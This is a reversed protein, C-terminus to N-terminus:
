RVFIPDEEFNDPERAEQPELQPEERVNIAEDELVDNPVQPEQQNPRPVILQDGQDNSNSKSQTQHYYNVLRKGVLYKDNKIHEYLRAFQMIQM